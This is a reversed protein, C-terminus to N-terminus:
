ASHKDLGNCGWLAAELGTPRPNLRPMEGSASLTVRSQASLSNAREPHLLGHKPQVQSPEPLTVDCVM